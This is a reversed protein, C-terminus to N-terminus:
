FDSGLKEPQLNLSATSFCLPSQVAAQSITSQTLQQALLLPEGLM